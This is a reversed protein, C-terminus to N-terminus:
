NVFSARVASAACVKIAVFPRENKIAPIGEIVAEEKTSRHQGREALGVEHVQFLPVPQCLLLRRQSGALGLVGAQPNRLVQV